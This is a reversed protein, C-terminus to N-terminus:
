LAALVQVWLPLEGPAHGFGVLEYRPNLMNVCHSPSSIWNSVASEPSVQGEALNEAFACGLFGTALVRDVPGAMEPSQHAFYGRGWMDEAHRQAASSLLPDIRLPASPDFCGDDGCCGGVHRYANTAVLLRDSLETYLSLDVPKVLPSGPCRERCTTQDGERCMCVSACQTGKSCVDEFTCTDRGGPDACASLVAAACLVGFSRRSWRRLVTMVGAIITSM